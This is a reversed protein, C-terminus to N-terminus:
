DLLLTAPLGRLPRGQFTANSATFTGVVADGSQQMQGVVTVDVDNSLKFRIEVRGSADIRSPPTEIPRGGGSVSGTIAGFSDQQLSFYSMAAGPFASSTLVWDNTMSALIFRNTSTTTSGGNGDTVTLDLAGNLTSGRLRSNVAQGEHFLTGNPFRWTYTLADNDPDSAQSTFSFLTLGDIGFNPAITAHAIVPVRNAPPPTVPPTTTSQPTSTAPNGKSGCAAALMALALILYRM